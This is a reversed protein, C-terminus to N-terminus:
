ESGDTDGEEIRQEDLYRAAMFGRMWVAMAFARVAEEQTSVGALMKPKALVAALVVYDHRFDENFAEPDIGISEIWADPNEWYARLVRDCRADIEKLDDRDIM